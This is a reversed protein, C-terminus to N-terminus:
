PVLLSDTFMLYVQFDVPNPGLNQVTAWLRRDGNPEEELWVHSVEVHPNPHEQHYPEAFFTYVRFRTAVPGGFMYFTAPKGPGLGYIDFTEEVYVNVKKPPTFAPHIM